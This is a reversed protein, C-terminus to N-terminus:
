HAAVALSVAEHWQRQYRRDIPMEERLMALQGLLGGVDNPCVKDDFADLFRFMATYAEAPTQRKRYPSV